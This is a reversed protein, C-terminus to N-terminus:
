NVQNFDVNLENLQQVVIQQFSARIGETKMMCKVKKEDTEIFQPISNRRFFFKFVVHLFLFLFVSLKFPGRRVKARNM